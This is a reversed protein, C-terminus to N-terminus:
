REAGTSAASPPVTGRGEAAGGGRRVIRLAANAASRVRWTRLPTRWQTREALGSLLTEAEPGGARELVEILSLCVPLPATRPDIQPILRQLVALSREGGHATLRSVLSMQAAADARAIGRALIEAAREASSCSLARFAEARVGEHADSLAAELAALHETGPTLELLRIAAVRAEGAEADSALLRRLGDRGAKGAAAVAREFRVRVPPQREAAWRRAVAPMLPAGIAALVAVLVDVSAPSADPLAALASEAASSTGLKQLAEAALVRLTRDAVQTGAIQIADLTRAVGDWEGADAAELVHLHLIDLVKRLRAPDTESRVLDGLLRLDLEKVAEDSISAVWAALREPPDDTELAAGAGRDRVEHLEDGYQDSIFRRDVQAELNRELEAWQEVVNGGLTVDQAESVILRRRDPSPVMSRFMEALRAPLAGAEGMAKSLFTSVAADPMREVLARVVDLTGVTAEPTGRRDLLGAMLGETLFEGVAAARRFVENFQEPQTWTLQAAARLERLIAAIAQTEDPATDIARRLAACPDDLISGGVGATELYHSIVAALELYDGGVKGRLLAGFDIELIAPSTHRLAKWQRQIGGANRVEEPRRALLMFFAQWAEPTARGDLNVAGVGHRHCLTAFDNVVTESTDIPVGGALFAQPLITLCVPGSTTAARAAAAVHDLAAVVAQHTPPYFGVARAASRFARAFDLVRAEDPSRAANAETPMLLGV